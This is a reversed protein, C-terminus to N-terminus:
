MGIIRLGKSPTEDDIKKLGGDKGHPLGFGDSPRQFIMRIQSGQPFKRIAPPIEITKVVDSVAAGIWIERATTFFVWDDSPKDRYQLSINVAAGGMSFDAGVGTPKKSDPAYNVYGSIEATVEEKFTFEYFPTKPTTNHTMLNNTAVEEPFWGIVVPNAKNFSPLNTEGIVQVGTGFVSLLKAPISAATGVEGENNIVLVKADTSPFKATTNLKMNGNLELKASPSNTGIGVNGDASIYIRNDGNTRISIPKSDTTGIFNTTGTGSNGLLSWAQQSTQDGSFTQWQGGNWMYIGPKLGDSTTSLNYVLLGTLKLRNTDYQPDSSEIFFPADKQTLEVRPLLLGGGDKNTTAGDPKSDPAKITKIDLLAGEEPENGSGITVQASLSSVVLLFILIFIQNKM